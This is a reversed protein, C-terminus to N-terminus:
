FGHESHEQEPKSALEKFAERIWFLNYALEEQSRAFARPMGHLRWWAWAVMGAAGALSVVAVLGYAVAHSLGAAILCQIIALLGVPVAGLFLLSGMLFMALPRVIREGIERADSQFLRGQLEALTVVDHFVRGISQVVSESAEAKLPMRTIM